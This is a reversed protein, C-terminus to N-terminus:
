EDSVEAYLKVARDIVSSKSRDEKDALKTILKVTESKLYFSSVRKDTM